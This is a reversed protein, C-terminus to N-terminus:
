HKKRTIVYFGGCRVEKTLKSSDSDNSLNDMQEPQLDHNLWLYSPLPKIIKIKAFKSYIYKALKKSELLIHINILYGILKERKM